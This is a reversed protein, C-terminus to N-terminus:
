AYKHTQAVYQVIFLAFKNSSFIKRTNDRWIMSPVFSFFFVIFLVVYEFRLVREQFVSSVLRVFFTCTLLRQHIYKMGSSSSTLFRRVRANNTSFYFYFGFYFISWTFFANWLASWHRGFTQKKTETRCGIPSWMLVNCAFAFYKIQFKSCRWEADSRELITRKMQMLACESPRNREENWMTLNKRIINTQWKQRDEATKQQQYIGNVWVWKALPESRSM